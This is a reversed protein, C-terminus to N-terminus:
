YHENILTRICSLIIKCDDKSVEGSNTHAISNRLSYTIDIRRGLRYNIIGREVLRDALHNMETNNNIKIKEKKCMDALVTELAVSLTAAAPLYLKRRYCEEAQEMQYKFDNEFEESKFNSILMEYDLHSHPSIKTHNFDAVATNNESKWSAYDQEVASNAHIKIYETVLRGQFDYIDMGYGFFKVVHKSNIEPFKIQLFRELRDHRNLDVLIRSVDSDLKKFDHEGEIEQYNDCILFYLKHNFFDNDVHVAATNLYNEFRLIPFAEQEHEKIHKYMQNVKEEYTTIYVDLIENVDM